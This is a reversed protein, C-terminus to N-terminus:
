GTFSHLIRGAKNCERELDTPWWGEAGIVNAAKNLPRAAMASMKHFRQAMTSNVPQSKENSAINEQAEPEVSYAPLTQGPQKLPDVFEISRNSTTYITM